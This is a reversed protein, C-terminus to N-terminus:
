WVGVHAIAEHSHGEKSALDHAAATALHVNDEGANHASSCLSEADEARTYWDQEATTLRVNPPTILLEATLHM